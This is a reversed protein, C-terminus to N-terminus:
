ARGLMMVDNCVKNVQVQALYVDPMATEYM